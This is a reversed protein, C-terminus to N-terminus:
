KGTATDSIEREKERGREGEKETEENWIKWGYKKKDMFDTVRTSINKWGKRKKENNGVFYNM